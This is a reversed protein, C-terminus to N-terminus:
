GPSAAALVRARHQLRQRDDGVALRHRAAVDLVDAADGDGALDDLLELVAAPDLRDAVALRRAPRRQERGGALEEVVEAQCLRSWNGSSSPVPSAAPAGASSASRRARPRLRATTRRHRRRRRPRHRDPMRVGVRNGRWRGGVWAAPVRGCSGIASAVGHRLAVDFAAVRGAAGSAAAGLATGAAVGVARRRRLPASAGVAARRRRARRPSRPSPSRPSRLRRRPRRRGAGVAFAALAVPSPSPLRGRRASGSGRSNRPGAAAARLRDRRGLRALDEGLHQGPSNSASAASAGTSVSSAALLRTSAASGSAGLSCLTSACAPMPERRSM